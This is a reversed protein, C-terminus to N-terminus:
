LCWRSAIQGLRVFVWGKPLAFPHEEDALEGLVTQKPIQKKAILDAKQTSVHNLWATVSDDTDCQEVLRGHVALDLVMERLRAVGGPANAIHGFAALFQQADM